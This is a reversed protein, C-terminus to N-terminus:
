LELVFIMKEGRVGKLEFGLRALTSMEKNVISLEALICTAGADELQDILTNAEQLFVAEEMPTDWHLLYAGELATATIQKEM